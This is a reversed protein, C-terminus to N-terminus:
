EALKIIKGDVKFEKNIRNQAKIAEDLSKYSGVMVINLDKGNIIKRILDTKYKKAKIKKILQKANNINAFAGVQISYKEISVPAEDKPEIKEDSKKVPPILSETKENKLYVENISSLYSSGPFRKKLQVAYDKAKTYTGISYYYSYLKFLALQSLYHKPNIKQFDDYKNVADIGNETLLADIIDISQDNFNVDKRIERLWSKVQETKGSEILKLQEVIVDSQAFLNISFLILLIIKKTM